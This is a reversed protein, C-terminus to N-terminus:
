SEGLERVLHERVPEFMGYAKMLEDAEALSVWRVDALEAPDGVFIEYSGTPIAALYFMRRGTKPHTREGILDGVAVEMTTEEKVERAAAFAPSEGPEIEGSIFTWPPQGDHRQGVLVGLESTVIATAIPREAGEEAPIPRNALDRGINRDRLAEAQRDREDEATSSVLGILQGLRTSAAPRDPPPLEMYRSFLASRQGGGLMVEFLQRWALEHAGSRVSTADGRDEARPPLFFYL